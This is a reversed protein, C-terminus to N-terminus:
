LSDCEITPVIYIWSPLFGGMSPLLVYRGVFIEMGNRIGVVM